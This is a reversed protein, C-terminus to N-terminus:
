RRLEALEAWLKWFLTEFNEIKLKGLFLISHIFASSPDCACTYSSVKLKLGSITARIQMNGGHLFRRQEVHRWQEAHEASGFPEEKDYGFIIFRSSSMTAPVREVSSVGEHEFHDAATTMYVECTPVWVEDELAGDFAPPPLEPFQSSFSSPSRHQEESDEFEECGFCIFHGNRSGFWIENWASVFSSKLFAIAGPMPCHSGESCVVSARLQLGAVFPSVKSLSGPPVSSSATRRRSSRTPFTWLMLCRTSRNLGPIGLLRSPAHLTSLRWSTMRCTARSGVMLWSAHTPLRMASKPTALNTLSRRTEVREVRLRRGCHAFTMKTGIAEVSALQAIVGRSLLDSDRKRKGSWPMPMLAKASAEKYRARAGQYAVYASHHEQAGGKMLLLTMTKVKMPSMMKKAIEKTKPTWPWTSQSNGGGKGDRARSAQGEAAAGLVMGCPETRSLAPKSSSEATSSMTAAQWSLFNRARRWNWSTSMCGPKSWPLCSVVFKMFVFCWAGLSWTSTACRKIQDRRADGLFTM